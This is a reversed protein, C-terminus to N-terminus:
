NSSKQQTKIINKISPRKVIEPFLEDLIFAYDINLTVANNLYYYGKENQHTKLYLGALRYFIEENEPYFEAARNLFTIAEKYEGLKILIDTCSLWTSMENNGLALAKKYGIEAEEFFELRHNIKAYLKWYIVNESDTNIAKKIYDLAKYFNNKKTYFETIAVWGKDLVPDETITKKYHQIALEDNNLKEYCNGIRLYVFSTPDDLQMSILYNEIAEEYLKLKELVKGKELYAGVFTDDSIIAFDFASIAKHYDKLHFYQKGLQHWAVECYPNTDLYMNLFDIAQNSQDLFDFCYVANYLASYDQSDSELCKIFYIKADSFNDLFLYEMGVLSYLDSIIENDESFDLASKLISIAKEHEDRKSLINAKQIFIEENLSEIEHLTDLLEEAEELKNEFTLIEVQFLQLNVSTPHQQLGLKIAKKALAIKGNELYHHIINEFENSDFFLVNNTKLMSEFKNLSYSYNHKDNQSFEM